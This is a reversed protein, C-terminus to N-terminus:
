DLAQRPTLAPALKRLWHKLTVHSCYALFCVYIHDDVRPGLQHFVPRIGLDNKFNRFVAEIEVLLMYMQWTQKPESAM